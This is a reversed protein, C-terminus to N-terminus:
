SDSSIAVCSELSAESKGHIEHANGLLIGAFCADLIEALENAIGDLSCHRQVFKQRENSLPRLFSQLFFEVLDMYSIAFYSQGEYRKGEEKGAEAVESM